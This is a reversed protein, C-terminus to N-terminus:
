KDAIFNLAGILLVLVVVTGVFGSTLLPVHSADVTAM